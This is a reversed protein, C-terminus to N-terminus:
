FPVEVYDVMRTGDWMTLTDPSTAFPKGRYDFSMDPFTWYISQWAMEFDYRDTMMMVGICKSTTMRQSTM